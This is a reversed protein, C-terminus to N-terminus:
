SAPCPTRKRLVVVDQHGHLGGEHHSVIDFYRGWERQVYERTHFATQYSDPLGDLKLAGKHDVRFHYGYRALKVKEVPTCSQLAFRGHVTAM